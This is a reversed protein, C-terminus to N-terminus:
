EGLAARLRQEADAAATAMLGRVAAAAASVGGRLATLQSAAATARDRELNLAHRAADRDRIAANLELRV